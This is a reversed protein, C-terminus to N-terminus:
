IHHHNPNSCGLDDAYPCTPGCCGLSLCDEHSRTSRRPRYTLPGRPHEYYNETTRYRTRM